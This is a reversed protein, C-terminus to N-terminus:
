EDIEEIEKDKEERGKKREKKRERRNFCILLKQRMTNKKWSKEREQRIRDIDYILSFRSWTFLVDRNGYKIAERLEIISYNYVPLSKYIMLYLLEM